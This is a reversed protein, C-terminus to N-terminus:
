LIINGGPCVSNITVSLSDAQSTPNFNHIKWRIEREPFESYPPDPRIYKTEDTMSCILEYEAIDGFTIDVMDVDSAVTKGNLIWRVVQTNPVPTIHDISFHLDAQGNIIIDSESPTYSNIPNVLNYVRMAVRQNCIPCMKETNDFVGAGMICGQATSRFYNTLHYQCGEFAGVKNLYEKTYPTPLPTDPEIWKAWKIKDRRYVITSNYTPFAATGTAGTTYEDGISMCTHSIEHLMKGIGNGAIVANGVREELNRAAGGGGSKSNPMVLVTVWGTNEDKWPLFLRNRITDVLDLDVGKGWEPMDPWWLGYVNFFQWYNAYATQAREDGPTLAAILSEHIDKLFEEKMEPSNYPENDNSTWRNMIVINIRNDKPGNILVPILEIKQLLSDLNTVPQRSYVIMNGTVANVAFVFFLIRFYILLKKM